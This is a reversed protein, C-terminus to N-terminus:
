HAIYVAQGVTTPVNNDLQEWALWARSGATIAPMAAGSTPPMALPVSQRASGVLATRAASGFNFVTVNGAPDQVFLSLASPVVAGTLVGIFAPQSSNNWSPQVFCHPCRPNNPEPVVIGPANAPNATCASPGAVAAPPPATGTSSVGTIPGAPWPNTAGLLPPCPLGLARCLSVRRATPYGFIRRGSVTLAPAVPVASDALRKMIEDARRAPEYAWVTAAIGSTVAASVSTGSLPAPAATPAPAGVAAAWSAGGIAPAALVPRASPRVPAIPRDLYDLGGAAYLLPAGAAPVAQWPSGIVKSYAAVLESDVLGACDEPSVEEAELRAPCAMGAPSADARHANGAAAISLVGNCAAYRLASVVARPGGDENCTTESEWGISLNLVLHPPVPAGDLLATRFDHFARLVAAAVESPYGYQGGGNPLTHPLGQAWGVEGACTGGSRLPCLFDKALHAMTCGHSDACTEPLGNFLDPDTDIAVIRTSKPPATELKALGGAQAHLAGRFSEALAPPLAALPYVHQCEETITKLGTAPVMEAELACLDSGTANSNRTYICTRALEDPLKGKVKALPAAAWGAAISAPSLPCKGAATKKIGIWRRGGCKNRHKPTCAGGAGRGGGTGAEAGGGKLSGRIGFSCGSWVAAAVCVLALLAWPGFVAGRGVSVAPRFGSERM